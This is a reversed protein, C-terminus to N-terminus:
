YYETVRYTVTRTTSGRYSTRSYWTTDFKRYITGYYPGDKHSYIDAKYSLGLSDPDADGFGYILESAIFYSVSALYVTGSLGALLISLGSATYFSLKKSLAINSNKETTYYDTYDSPKGRPCDETNYSTSMPQIDHVIVRDTEVNEITIEIGDSFVKGDSAIIIEDKKGNESINFVMNGNNEESVDIISKIGNDMIYTYVISDEKVEVDKLSSLGIGANALFHVSDKIKIHTNNDLATKALQEITNRTLSLEDKVEFNNKAFASISSTLFMTICLIFSVYKKM